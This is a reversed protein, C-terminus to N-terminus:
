KKRNRYYSPPHDLYNSFARYLSNSDSFGTREGIEDISLETSKLLDVAYALRKRTVYEMFTMGFKEKFARSFYSPNYFFRRALASGTIRTDLNQDIYDSLERWVDDLENSPMGVEIKRLMKVILTNLYNELVTEWSTLQAEYERLMALVIDEIEEREVGHFSIKGFNADKTMDGFATLIMLSVANTPTLINSNIREPAFLINVYTYEGDLVFDHTCGCSMFLFDGKKVRYERGNIRHTMQGSLVYVIEIFEHTHVPLIGYSDSPARCKCVYVHGNDKMMEETTFIRM